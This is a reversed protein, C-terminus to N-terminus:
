CKSSGDYVNLYDYQCGSGELDVEEINVIVTEGSTPADIRWHCDLNRAILIVSM